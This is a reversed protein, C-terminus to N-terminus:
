PRTMEPRLKLLSEIRSPEENFYAEVLPKVVNRAFDLNIESNFGFLRGHRELWQSDYFHTVTARLQNEKSYVILMGEVEMTGQRLNLRSSNGQSHKVSVVFPFVSIDPFEAADKRIALDRVQLSFFHRAQILTKLNSDPLKSFYEANPTGVDEVVLHMRPFDKLVIYHSDNKREEASPLAAYGQIEAQASVSITCFLFIFFARM